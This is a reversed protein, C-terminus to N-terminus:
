PRTRLVCYATCLVCDVECGLVKIHLKEPDPETRESVKLAVCNPGLMVFSWAIALEAAQVKVSSGVMMSKGLASQDGGGVGESAPEEAYWAPVGGDAPRPRPGAHGHRSATAGATASQCGHHTLQNRARGVYLLVQITGVPMLRRVSFSILM